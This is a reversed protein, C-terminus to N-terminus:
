TANEVKRRVKNSENAPASGSFESLFPRFVQWSYLNLIRYFNCLIEFFFPTTAAEEDGGGSFGGKFILGDEYFTENGM